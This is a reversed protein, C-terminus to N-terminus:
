DKLGHVERLTKIWAMLQPERIQNVKYRKFDAPSLLRSLEALMAFRNKWRADSGPNGKKKM